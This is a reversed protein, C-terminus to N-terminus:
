VVGGGCFHGCRLGVLLYLAWELWLHHGGVICFPRIGVFSVLWGGDLGMLSSPHRCLSVIVGSGGCEISM